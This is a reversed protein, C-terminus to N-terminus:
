QVKLPDLNKQECMLERKMIKKKVILKNTMLNLFVQNM